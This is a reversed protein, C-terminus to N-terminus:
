PWAIVPVDMMPSKLMEWRGRVSAIGRARNGPVTSACNYTTRDCTVPSIVSGSCVTEGEASM